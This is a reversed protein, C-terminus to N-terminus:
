PAEGRFARRIVAEALKGQPTFDGAHTRDSPPHVKWVIAGALWPEPWVEEFFATYLRAQLAEDAEVADGRAPWEWPRAAAHGVDRYGIETFLIPKGTRVHVAELDAKHAAWGARLADISPSPVDSLPFYAQVGVYDLADWFPVHEVVDYWNAAYTLDGDYVTRIEAILGRWFSERARVAPGLEAGIVFLPAGVEASLRAYALAFDQYAAEWTTWDAESAFAIDGSWGDRIWIQPKIVLRMGLSDAQRALAGIGARGETYWRADYNARLAPDDTDQQFAFPVVAM